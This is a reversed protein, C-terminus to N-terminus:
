VAVSVCRLFAVALSFGFSGLVAPVCALPRPWLDPSGEFRVKLPFSTGASAKLCLCSWSSGLIIDTVLGRMLAQDVTTM